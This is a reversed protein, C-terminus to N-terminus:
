VDASPDVSQPPEMARSAELAQAELAQSEFLAENRWAPLVYKELHIENLPIYRVSALYDKAPVHKARIKEWFTDFTSYLLDPERRKYEAWCRKRLANVEPWQMNHRFIAADDMGDLYKKHDIPNQIKRTEDTTSELFDLWNVVPRVPSKAAPPPANPTEGKLTTKGDNWYIYQFVAGEADTWKVNDLLKFRSYQREIAWNTREELWKNVDDMARAGGPTAGSLIEAYVEPCILYKHDPLPAPIDSGFPIPPLILQIRKYSGDEKLIFYWAGEATVKPLTATITATQATVVLYTAQDESDAEIVQNESPATSSGTCVKCVGTFKKLNASLISKVVGCRCTFTYRSNDGVRERGSVTFTGLTRGVAWKTNRSAPVPVLAESM